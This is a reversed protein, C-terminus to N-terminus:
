IMNGKEELVNDYKGLLNKDHQFKHTLNKKVNNTNLNIGLFDITKKIPFNFKVGTKLSILKM